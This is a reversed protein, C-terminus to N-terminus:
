MVEVIVVESVSNFEGDNVTIVVPYQGPRHTDVKGSYTIANSIDKGVYDKATAGIM